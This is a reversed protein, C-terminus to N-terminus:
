RDLIMEPLESLWSSLVLYPSNFSSDAYFRSVAESLLQQGRPTFPVYPDGTYFDPFLLGAELPFEALFRLLFEQLLEEPNVPLALPIPAPDPVQSTLHAAASLGSVIELKRDITPHLRIGQIRPNRFMGLFRHMVSQSYDSLANFIVSGSGTLFVTIREPLLIRQGSDTSSPLMDLATFMMIQCFYYLILAGTHTPRGEAMRHTCIAHLEQGYQRSMSDIVPVVRQLSNPERKAESLLAILASLDSRFPETASEGFDSVLISPNRLLSPLLVWPLGDAIRCSRLAEEAKGSFLSLRVSRNGLDLAIFGNGTDAPSIGRCYASIATSETCSLLGSEQGVSSLGSESNVRDTLLHLLTILQFRTEHPIDDPVSFRWKLSSCGKIRISFAVLLMLEHLFIDTAKTNSDSIQFASVLHGSSVSLLETPDIERYIIGTSFPCPLTDMGEEFLLVNSPILPTFDDASLFERKLYGPSVTPNSLLLRVASPGSFLEIHDAFETLVSVSSSGFDVCVTASGISPTELEPLLNPLAGAFCGDLEFIFCMPFSDFQRIHRHGTGTLWIPDDNTVVGIKWSDRFHAYAFYAHWADHAFPVSPWLAVTPLDHAYLRHIESGNWVRSLRLTFAGELTLTCCISGNEAQKFKLFDPQFLTRGEPLLCLAKAFAPSFPPLVADSAPINEQRDDDSDSPNNQIICLTSLLNDGIIEGGRAPFLVLCDTFPMLLSDAMREGVCEALITRVTPSDPDWPWSLTTVSDKLPLQAEHLLSNAVNCADTSADPYRALLEKLGSTLADRYDDSSRFLLQCETDLTNLLLDEDPCGTSELLSSSSERAFPKGNFTYIVEGPVEVTSSDFPNKGTLASCFSDTVIFRDYFSSVRIIKDKWSRLEPLACSAKLRAAFLSDNVSRYKYRIIDQYFVNLFENLERFSDDRLVSRCRTLQETLIMRDSENLYPCPDMWSCTGRNFWTAFAPILKASAVSVSVSAPIHGPLIIAVPQELAGKRVLALTASSCGHLKLWADLATDTGQHFHIYEVISEDATARRYQRLLLMALVGRCSVVPNSDGETLICGALDSVTLIKETGACDPLLLVEPLQNDTFIRWSSIVDTCVNWVASFLGSITDSKEDARNVSLLSRTLSKTDPCRYEVFLTPIRERVASAAEENSESKSLLQFCAEAVSSDLLDGAFPIQLSIRSLAPAALAPFVSLHQLDTKCRKVAAQLLRSRRERAFLTSRSEAPMLSKDEAASKADSCRSTCDLLLQRTRYASLFSLASDRNELLTKLQISMDDLHRMLREEETDAMSVRHVPHVKDVGSDEAEQRSVDYEAALTVAQGCLAYAKEWLEKEKAALRLPDPLTRILILEELLIIKLVRELTSLFSFDLHDVNSRFFRRFLNNKATPTISRLLAPHEAYANLSPFLDSLCWISSLLFSAAAPAETGLSGLTLTAPVNITHLGAAPPTQSRFSRAAVRAAVFSLLRYSDESLVFSAPLGLIWAADAGRTNRGDTARILSRESLCTLAEKAFSLGSKRSDASTHTLGILVSFADPINERFWQLLSVSVGFSYPDCLDCLLVLRIDSDTNELLSNTFDFFPSCREDLSVLMSQLMWETMEATKISASDRQNGYLASILQKMKDSSCFSTGDPFSLKWHHLDYFTKLCSMGKVGSFASACSDLDNLLGTVTAPLDSDSVSFVSIAPVPETIGGSFASLVAPLVNESISGIPLFCAKLCSGEKMM